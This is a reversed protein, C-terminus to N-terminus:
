KGNREIKLIEDTLDMREYMGMNPYINIIKDKIYSESVTINYLRKEQRIYGLIHELRNIIIV